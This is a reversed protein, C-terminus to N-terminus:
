YFNKCIIIIFPVQNVNIYLTSGFTFTIVSDFIFVNFIDIFSLGYLHHYMHIYVPNFYLHISMLFLYNGFLLTIFNKFKAISIWKKYLCFSQTHMSSYDCAVPHCTKRQCSQRVNYLIVNKNCSNVTTTASPFQLRQLPIAGTM